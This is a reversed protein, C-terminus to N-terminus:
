TRRARPPSSIIAPRPHPDRFGIVDDGAPAGHLSQEDRVKAGYESPIGGPAPEPPAPLPGNIAEAQAPGLRTRWVPRPFLMVVDGDAIGPGKATSM